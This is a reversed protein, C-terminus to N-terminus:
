FSPRVRRRATAYVVVTDAAQNLQAASLLSHLALENRIREAQMVELLGAEQRALAEIRAPPVVGATLLLEDEQARLADFETRLAIMHARWTKGIKHIESQQAATKTAGAFAAVGDQSSLSRHAHSAMPTVLGVLAVGVTVARM